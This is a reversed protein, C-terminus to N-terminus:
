QTLVYLYFGIGDVLLHITWSGIISRGTKLYIFNFILRAVAQLLLVHLVTSIIDGNWYAIVHLLGFILASLLSANVFSWGKSRAVELVGIGLLEEGMLAFPM